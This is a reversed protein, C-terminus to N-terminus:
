SNIRNIKQLEPIIKRKIQQIKRYVNQYDSTVIYAIDKYTRGDLLLSLIALEKNNLKNKIVDFIDHYKEKICMDELPDSIKINCREEIDFIDKNIYVPDNKKLIIAKIITKKIKRKIILNIYTNFSAKNFPNYEEVARNFLTYCSEKLEDINISLWKLDESYSNIIKNIIVYYKENLAVHAEENNEKILMILESDNTKM